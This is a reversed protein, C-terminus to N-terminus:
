KNSIKYNIESISPICLWNELFYEHFDFGNSHQTLSKHVQGCFYNQPYICNLIVLNTRYSKNVWFDRWTHDVLIKGEHRLSGSWFRPPADVNSTKAYKQLCQRLDATYQDKM